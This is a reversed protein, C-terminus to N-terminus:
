RCCLIKLELSNIRSSMNNITEKLSRMIDLVQEQSSRTACTQLTRTNSELAAKNSQVEKWTADIEERLSDSSSLLLTNIKPKIVEQSSEVTGLRPNVQEQTHKYETYMHNQKDLM